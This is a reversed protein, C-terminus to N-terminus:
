RERGRGHHARRRPCIAENEGAMHEGTEGALGTQADIWARLGDFPIRRSRGISLSPVEGAAMLEYMRSRSIRCLRAAEEVKVLLQPLDREQAM